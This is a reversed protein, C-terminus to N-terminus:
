NTPTRTLPRPDEVIGPPRQAAGDKDGDGIEIRGREIMAMLHRVVEPHKAAVSTSEAPDTDLNYLEPEALPISSQQPGDKAVRLKWPGSRVAQLHGEFYYLYGDSDYPSEVNPNKLLNILNHGDIKRSPLKAGAVHAFMPLVDM